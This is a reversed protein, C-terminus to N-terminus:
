RVWWPLPTMREQDGKAGHGMAFKRNRVMKFQSSINQNGPPSISPKSWMQNMTTVGPSLWHRLSPLLETNVVPIHTKRKKKYMGMLLMNVYFGHRFAQSCGSFLNKRWLKRLSWDSVLQNCWKAQDTQNSQLNLRYFSVAKHDLLQDRKIAVDSRFQTAIFCCLIM